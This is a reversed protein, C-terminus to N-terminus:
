HSILFNSSVNDAVFNHDIEDDFGAQNNRGDQNFQPLCKMLQEFQNSIFMVYGNEVHTAAATRKTYGTNGNAQKHKSSGSQKAMSQKYKYHWTPYGVKEWRKNPLHWKAGCIECKANSSNANASKSYLATSEVCPSSLVHRQSEEQQILSCASEVNPLPTIM